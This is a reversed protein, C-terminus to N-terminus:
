RLSPKLHGHEDFEVRLLGPKERFPARNSNGFFTSWWQGNFDKFVVNHGGHPIALYRDGYPGYIKDASAVFCHYDNNVFEAAAMHYKGNAKFLYAGEFGVHKANGPKALVPKGAPASLDENMLTIKGNGSVFYVRGDDDQFLSADIDNSIPGEKAIANVYPGEVKGSTSKLIGNGTGPICYTLWFTGKLYHIEPAWLPRFPVGERYMM